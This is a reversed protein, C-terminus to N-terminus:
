AGGRQRVFDEISMKPAAGPSGDVEPMPAPAATPAAVSDAKPPKVRKTQIDTLAAIRQDIADTAAEAEDLSMGLYYEGIMPDEMQTIVSLKNKVDEMQVKLQSLVPGLQQKLTGAAENFAKIEADTLASGYLANRLSNRFTAYSAVAETGKVEDSFYKKVTFLLNDIIGTEEPSLETGADGGVKFLSRLDRAVKKTSADIKKGTANELDVIREGVKRRVKPDTLDADYFNGGAVEHVEDRIERSLEVNKETGSPTAITRAAQKLADERTLSPDQLMMDDAVREVTSGTTKGIGKAENYQKAAELLSIGQEKAIKGIINTEASQAGQVMSDIKTRTMLRQLEADKVYGMYGTAQYLKNMNVMTQRGQPDTAMLKSKALEPDAFYKEPDDVGMQGLMARTEPTDTVPDFRVFKSWMGSGPGGKSATRQMFNNIHRVDGDSEYFSFADFSNRKTSERQQQALQLQLQEVKLETQEREIPAMAQSQQLRFESEKKRAQAEAIRADREPQGAMYQGVQELGQAIGAYQQATAM